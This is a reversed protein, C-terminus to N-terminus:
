HDTDDRGEHTLQCGTNHLSSGVIRYVGYRVFYERQVAHAEREMAIIAECTYPRPYRKSQSQLYHVMEHVVISSAYLDAAPKLRNDLFITRGPPFWGLVRCERGACAHQVLYSHPVMEVEPLRDPAAYGSLMVAWSMLAAYLETM